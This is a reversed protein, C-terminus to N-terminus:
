GTQDQDVASGTHLEEPQEDTDADDFGYEVDDGLTKGISDVFDEFRKNGSAQKESVKQKAEESVGHFRGWLEVAKLKDRNEAQKNFIIDEVVSIIDPYKDAKKRNAEAILADRVDKKVKWGAITRPHVGIANSIDTDSLGDIKSAPDTRIRIYEKQKDSLLPYDGILNKYAGVPRKPM